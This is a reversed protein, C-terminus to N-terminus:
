KVPEKKYDSAVAKLGALTFRWIHHALRDLGQGALDLEPNVMEVVHRNQFVFAFQAVISIAGRVVAEHDVPLGMVFSALSRFLKATPRLQLQAFEDFAPTPASMERLMVRAAWSDPSNGLLSGLYGLFFAEIKEESLDSEQAFNKLAGFHVLTRHAERLVELYLQEKGGFHYNVAACNVRALDCIQRSTARDFGDQAFLHGAAEIIRNRTTLSESATGGDIYEKRNEM